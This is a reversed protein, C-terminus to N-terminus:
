IAQAKENRMHSSTNLSVWLARWEKLSNILWPLDKLPNKEGFGAPMSPNSPLAGRKASITIITV